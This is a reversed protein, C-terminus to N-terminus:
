GPRDLTAVNRDGDCIEVVTRRPQQGLLAEAHARASADDACMRIHLDSVTRDARNVYFMYAKM